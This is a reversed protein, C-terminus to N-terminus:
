TGALFHLLSQGKNMIAPEAGTTPTPRTSKSTVMRPKPRVLKPPGVLLANQQVAMNDEKAAIKTHARNVAAAQADKEDQKRNKEAAVEDRSRQARNADLVIKGPHKNVNGPRTTPRSM